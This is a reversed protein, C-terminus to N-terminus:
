SEQLSWEEENIPEVEKFTGEFTAANPGLKLNSGSAKAIVEHNEQFAAISTDFEATQTGKVKFTQNKLPCAEEGKNKFEIETFTEETGSGTFLDTLAAPPTALQDTFKAVVPEKVICKAPKVVTINTFTIEGKSKGSDEAQLKAVATTGTLETAFGLVTGKLVSSVAHNDNTLEGEYEKPTGTPSSRVCVAYDGGEETPTCVPVMVKIFEGTGVKGATCKNDSFTSPEGADVQACWVGPGLRTVLTAKVYENPPGVETCIPNKWHGTGAVAVKYCGASASASAIASFAFVALAALM